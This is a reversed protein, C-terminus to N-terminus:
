SSAKAAGLPPISPSSAQGPECCITTSCNHASWAANPRITYSPPVTRCRAKVPRRAARWIECQNVQPRSLRCADHTFSPRSYKGKRTTTNTRGRWVKDSRQSSIQAHSYTKSDVRPSATPPPLLLLCNLGGATPAELEDMELAFLESRLASPM